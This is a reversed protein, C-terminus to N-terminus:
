RWRLVAEVPDHDSPYGASAGDNTAFRTANIRADVATFAPTHLIWDIRGPQDNRRGFGNFTRADTDGPHLTGWADSLGPPGADPDVLASFPESAGAPCNFDGTVLVAADGAIEAIRRRLLRASEVRARLGANDFHTNFVVVERGTAIETLRVWEVWREHKADWDDGGPADPTQSLEFTGREAAEFRGSRWAILKAERAEDPADAWRERAHFGHGPLAARLDAEQGPMVEQLGLVDPDFSRIMSLLAARRHEWGHEGDFRDVVGATRVNCTMVRLHKESAALPRTRESPTIM